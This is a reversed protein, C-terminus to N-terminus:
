GRKNIQRMGVALVFIVLIFSMFISIGLVVLAIVRGFEDNSQVIQKYVQIINQPQETPTSAEVNEVDEEVEEQEELAADEEGQDTVSSIISSAPVSLGSQMSSSMGQIAQSIMSSGSTATQNGTQSAVVFAGVKNTSFVYYGDMLTGSMKTKAGDLVRYISVSDSSSKSSIPIRIQVMGSPQIENGNRDSISLTYVTQVEETDFLNVISRYQSGSSLTSVQYTAGDEIINAEAQLQIGSKKDTWNVAKSATGSVVAETNEEITEDDAAKALTDWSMKLRAELPDDGMVEVKPDILVDIYEETSPLTFQFVSPQNGENNRAKIEAYKYKGNAQKIQITQLCATITGVTMPRTSLQMTYVGDKVILLAKKNLALNGMSAVDSTANWLDVYVNYKGDALKDKDLNEGSKEVLQSIAEKLLTVQNDVATQTANSLNYVKNAAELVESLQKLSAETYQDVNAVLKTAKQIQTKLKSKDVKSASDETDEEKKDSQEYEKWRAIDDEGMEKIGDYDIKIRCIQEGFGLSGMIPVYVQAWLLDDGLELPISIVKPYSKGATNVDTSSSSNYSDVVSFTSVVTSPNLDFTKPQNNSDFKINELLDFQSLYGEMGSFTMAKFKLYLTGKGNQVELKAEELSGNGMSVQDQTAKWLTVPIVYSGDSLATSAGVTQITMMTGFPMVLCVLLSFILLKLSKRKKIKM